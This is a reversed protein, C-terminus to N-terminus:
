AAAPTRVRRGAGLRSGLLGAVAILVFAAVVFWVPHPLMFFNAGTAALFLALVFWGPWEGRRALRTATFTGALIALTWGFLVALMAPLPATEIFAAVAAPDAMNSGAPMPALQHWLLETGFVIAFTLIVGAVIALIVRLM